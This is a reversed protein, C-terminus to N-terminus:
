VVSFWTVKSKIIFLIRKIFEFFCIVFILYFVITLIDFNSFILTKFNITTQMKSIQFKNPIQTKSFIFNISVLSITISITLFILGLYNM